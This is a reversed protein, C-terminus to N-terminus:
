LMERKRRDDSNQLEAQRIVEFEVRKQIQNSTTSILDFTGDKGFRDYCWEHSLPPTPRFKELHIRM